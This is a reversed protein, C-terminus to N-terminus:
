ITDAYGFGQGIMKSTEVFEDPVQLVSRSVESLDNGLSGRINSGSVGRFLAHSSHEKSGVSLGVDPALGKRMLDLSSQNRGIVGVTRDGVTVQLLSAHNAVQVDYGGDQRSGVASDDRSAVVSGGDRAHILSGCRKCTSGRTEAQEIAAKLPLM